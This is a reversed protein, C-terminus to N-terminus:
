GVIILPEIEGAMVLGDTTEGMRWCNGGFATAPDFLNQGDQMYLVSFRREPETEYNPPLYVIFDHTENELKSAFQQHLRLRSKLDPPSVLATDTMDLTTPM